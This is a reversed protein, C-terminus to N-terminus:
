KTHHRRRLLLFVAIIITVVAATAGAMVLMMPFPKSIPTLTVVHSIHVTETCPILTGPYEIGQFEPHVPWHIILVLANRNSRITHLGPQTLFFYGDPQLTVPSGDVELTAAESVFVYAECTSNKPLYILTNEDPKVGIYLVGAGYANERYTQFGVSKYTDGDHMFTLWVPKESEVAIGGVEQSLLAQFRYTSEKEVTFEQMVDLTRLNYVTVKTREPACIRFGYDEYTDWQIESVTYFRTGFFAGNASPIAYSYHPDWYSHPYGSQIMIYGTSTIKYTHWSKLIIRKYANADLSYSKTDSGDESRIEVSTKELAYIIFQPNLDTSALLIFEKGVFSGDTAPYYTHPVPGSTANPAPVSQYDLLLVCLPKNSEVKFMTGNRLVVYHKEMSNLEGHSLLERSKLDIVDVTTSDEWATMALLWSDVPQQDYHWHKEPNDPTASFSYMWIKEPVKGYYNYKPMARVLVTLSSLLGLLSSLALIAVGLLVLFKPLELSSLIHAKM